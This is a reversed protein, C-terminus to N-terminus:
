FLKGKTKKDILGVATVTCIFLMAAWVIVNGTRTYPTIDSRLKVDGTIYGEVLPELLQEVEGTPNILSSIGTNASRIVYRRTEIARLSAHRNHQYVAASDYFWSDNTSIALFEAGDLVTARTLSEYISDFCILSGVKGSQTEHLRSDTGNVIEDEFMNLEALPPIFIEILPRLPLFEGFPVIHRKHYPEGADAKIEGDRLVHVISNYSNTEEDRGYDTTFAGVLYEADTEIALDHLFQRAYKDSAIHRPVATEAWVILEAGDDAAQRSLSALADFIRDTRGKEWKDSSNVNAQIAAVKVSEGEDEYTALLVAGCILNSFFLVAAVAACKVARSKRGSRMEDFALAIYGGALVILFSLFYTGFLSVSQVLATAGLQSMALKAWPVGAWTLTQTWEFIVWLAALILPQLAKREEFFKLRRLMMFVVFQAGLVLSQLLPLGIWSVVVVAAAAPKSMGTFELPYLYIFWHFVTVGYGLFFMMGDRYVHRMKGGCDRRMMLGMVPAACGWCVVAFFAGEFVLPLALLVGLVLYLFPMLFSMKTKAPPTKKYFIEGQM